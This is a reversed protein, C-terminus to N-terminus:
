YEVLGTYFDLIQLMIQKNLFTGWGVKTVKGFIWENQYQWGDRIIVIITIIITIDIIIIIKWLQHCIPVKEGDCPVEEKEM